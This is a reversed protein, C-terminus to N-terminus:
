ATVAPVGYAGACTGCAHLNASGRLIPVPFRENAWASCWCCSRGDKQAASLTEARVTPADVLGRRTPSTSRPKTM